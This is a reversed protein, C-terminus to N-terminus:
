GNEIAWELQSGDIMGMIMIDTQPNSAAMKVRYAESADFVSFHQVGCAEALPVFKEISHGYAHGKVVSSVLVEDGMQKKLFRLNNELARKSIEIKSTTLM